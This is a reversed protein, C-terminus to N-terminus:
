PAGPGFREDYEAEAPPKVNLRASLGRNSVLRVTAVTAQIGAQLHAVGRQTSRNGGDTVQLDYPVSSPANALGIVRIITADGQQEVHLRLPKMQSGPPQAASALLIAAIQLLGPM